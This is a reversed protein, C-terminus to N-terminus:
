GESMKMVVVGSIILVAAILRGPTVAEGLVAVGVAFAGIAGIGTWITYATGLPLTRMSISLLIFSAAAALFTVLTPILLTFGASKKMSFAWVVELVGAIALIFWAM